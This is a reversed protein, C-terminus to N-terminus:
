YCQHHASRRRKRLADRALRLIQSTLPLVSARRLIGPRKLATTRQLAGVRLLAATWL